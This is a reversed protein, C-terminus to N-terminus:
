PGQLPAHPTGAPRLRTSDLYMSRWMSLAVALKYFEESRDLVPKRNNIRAQQWAIVTAAIAVIPTAVYGVILAVQEFTEV